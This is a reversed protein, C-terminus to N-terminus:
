KGDYAAKLESLKARLEEEPFWRGRVMVGARRKLNAVDELPNRELLLLDARKGAAVTGFEESPSLLRAADSTGARLAEFPTLGASVLEELEDHISLGPTMFPQDEAADTGLLIKVGAEHFAKTLKRLFELTRLLHPVAAPKFDKRYRNSPSLWRERVAPPVYGLGPRRALEQYSAEGAILAIAHYVALTATVAVGETKAMRVVDPIKGEDLRDPQKSFFANYFQEAHEVTQRGKLTIDLPLNYPLHGVVPRNQAVAAEIAAQYAGTSWDIINYIKFCDYGAQGQSTVIGRVAGPDKYGMLIPGCTYLNPGVVEGAAIKQKVALVGPNGAMNRVSTVGNALYLLWTRDEAFAHVHMDILGPMLYKGRGDIRLAGGPVRVRAAPGVTEIRGSRVIVTQNGRVGETMMTIVNVNIFAIVEASGVGKQDARLEGAPLFALAPGAFAVLLLIGILQM